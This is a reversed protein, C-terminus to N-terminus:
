FVGVCHEEIVQLIKFTKRWNGDNNRSNCRKQKVFTDYKVNFFMGAVM